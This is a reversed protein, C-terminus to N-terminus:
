PTGLRGYDTSLIKLAKHKTIRIRKVDLKRLVAWALLFSGSVIVASETVLPTNSNIANNTIALLPYGIAGRIFIKQFLKNHYNKKKLRILKLQNLKIEDESEFIITSDCFGKIRSTYYNRDGKIKYNIMQGEFFEYKEIFGFHSSTIRLKNQSFSISGLTFLVVCIGLRYKM